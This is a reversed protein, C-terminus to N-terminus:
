AEVEEGKQRAVTAALEEAPSPVDAVPPVDAVAAARAKLNARYKANRKAKHLARSVLSSLARRAASESADRGRCPVVLSMVSKGMSEQYVNAAWGGCDRRIIVLRTMTPHVDRGPLALSTYVIREGDGEQRVFDIGGINFIDVTKKRHPIVSAGPKGGRAMQPADPPIPASQPEIEVGDAGPPVKCGGFPLNAIVADIAAQPTHYVGTGDIGGPLDTPIANNMQENTSM